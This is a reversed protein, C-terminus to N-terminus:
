GRRARSEVSADTPSGPGCRPGAGAGTTTSTTTPCSRGTTPGRPWASCRAPALLRRRDRRAGGGAPAPLPRARGHFRDHPHAAREQVEPVDRALHRDLADARGPDPPVAGRPPVHRRPRTDLRSLRRYVQDQDGAEAVAAALARLDDLIDSFVLAPCTPTASARERARGRRRRLRSLRARQVPLGVPSEPLPRAIRGALRGRAPAPDPDDALADLRERIRVLDHHAPSTRTCRQWSPWPSRWMRRTRQGRCRTSRGCGTSRTTDWLYALHDDRRTFNFLRFRDSIRAALDLHLSDRGPDRGNEDQENM